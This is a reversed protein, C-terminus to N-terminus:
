AGRAEGHAVWRQGALVARVPGRVEDPPVGLLTARVWETAAQEFVRGQGLMAHQAGHVSVFGVEADKALRRAVTEARGLPAIRDDTGHVFLVRRGRLDAHDTGYLWPNLAVVSAIGERGGALLAARGGLSHGVLGVPVEGLDARVRELAWEVDHLPTTETDWGRVSNLLRYVALRGGGARALRRAIPVMRLVSLQTPSVMRREGRGAGGHLVLVAAEPSRPVRTPVLRPSLNM